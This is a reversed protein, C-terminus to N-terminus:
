CSPSEWVFAVQWKGSEADGRARPPDASRCSASSGSRVNSWPITGILYFSTHSVVKLVFATLLVGCALLCWWNRKPTANEGDATKPSARGDPDSKKSKAEAPKSRRGAPPIEPPAPKVSPPNKGSPPNPPPMKKTAQSSNGAEHSRSDAEPIRLTQGCAKCKAKKGALRESLEYAQGCECVVSITM